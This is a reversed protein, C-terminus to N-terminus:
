EARPLWVMMLKGVLPWTVAPRGPQSLLKSSASEEGSHLSSSRRAAQRGLPKDDVESPACAVYWANKIFM